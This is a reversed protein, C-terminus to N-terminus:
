RLSRLLPLTHKSATTHGIELFNLHSGVAFHSLSEIGGRFNVMSRTQSPLYSPVLDEPQILRGLKSSFFPITGPRFIIGACLRNLDDMMPDMSPSHFGFPVQIRTAKIDAARCHALFTELEDLCGAVVCDEPSNDCAVVLGNVKGFIQELKIYASDVSLKCAVMGSNDLKCHKVMLLARRAVLLLADELVLIGASVFAAYEGM